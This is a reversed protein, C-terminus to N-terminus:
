RDKMINSDGYTRTKETRNSKGLTVCHCKQRKADFTGNREALCLCRSSM